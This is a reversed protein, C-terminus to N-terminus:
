SWLEASSAACPKAARHGVLLHDPRLGARHGRYMQDFVTELNRTVAAAKFRPSRASTAAHLQDIRAAAPPFSSSRAFRKAATRRSSNVVAGYRVSPPVCGCNTFIMVLLTIAGIAASPATVKGISTSERKVTQDSDADLRVYHHPSQANKTLCM